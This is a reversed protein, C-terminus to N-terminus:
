ELRDNVALKRKVKHAAETFIDRFRKKADSPDELILDNLWSLAADILEIDLEVKKHRINHLSNATLLM